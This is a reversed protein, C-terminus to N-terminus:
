GPAGGHGRGRRSRRRAGARAPPARRVRPRLRHEGLALPRRSRLHARAYPAYASAVFGDLLERVVELRDLAAQLGDLQEIGEGLRRMLEHDVEPLSASLLRAVEAHDLSKSLHPRRVELLLGIMTDYQEALQSRTLPSDGRRLAVDEGVRRDRILFYWRTVGERGRSAKMGIGCTVREVGAPGLREFELWVYGIRQESEVCGVLNWKMEKANRAFPDLKRPSIDGDLCFPLLLELAKTKGSTNHGRLLMRGGAMEFVVDEGQDSRSFSARSGDDLRLVRWHCLMDLSDAFAIREARREFDLVLPPECRAGAEAVGRVLDGVVVQAGPRRELAAAALLLLTARRRELVPWEDRPRARGSTTGPPIRLARRLGAATPRKLLRAFEPTVELRYGLLDSALRALM